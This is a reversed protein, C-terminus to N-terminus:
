LRSVVSMCVATRAAVLDAVLSQLTQYPSQRRKLRKDRESESLAALDRTLISPRDSMADTDKRPDSAFISARM